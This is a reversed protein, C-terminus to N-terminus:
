EKKNIEKQFISASDNDLFLVANNHNRLVSAPCAESIKNLLTQSVAKAKKEGPVVTCMYGASLLMPITLTIAKEPVDDISFFCGDNVQQQRSVQDLKVVKVKLSDQFKAYPPDNFAIHGNEGIGLCVIDIPAESLLGTYRICEEEINEPNSNIYNVKKFNVKGFLKEELFNGFLQEAGESLGLYEDMHFATILEWPIDKMKSLEYLIENQSPAAAFIMRIEKKSKALEFIKDHVDKAATKGLAQRGAFIKVELKDLLFNKFNNIGSM